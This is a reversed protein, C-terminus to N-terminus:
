KLFLVINDKSFDITSIFLENADTKILSYSLFVDNVVNCYRILHMSSFYHLHQHRKFLNLNEYRLNLNTAFAIFYFEYIENENSILEFASEYTNINFKNKFYLDHIPIGKKVGIYYNIINGQLIYSDKIGVIDSADCLKM